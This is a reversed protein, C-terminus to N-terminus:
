MAAMQILLESPKSPVTLSLQEIADIADIMGDDMRQELCM